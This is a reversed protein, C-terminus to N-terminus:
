GMFKMLGKPVNAVTNVPDTVISKAAALPSKAAKVLANKYQETRSVDRLESIANIENVRRILMENGEAEFVGFDSDISFHNSGSYTPVPERVKHHPGNLVDPLLIESAKLEPLEEYYDSANTPTSVSQACIPLTAVLLTLSIAIPLTKMLKSNPTQIRIKSLLKRTILKLPLCM